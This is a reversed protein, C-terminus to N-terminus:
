SAIDSQKNKLDAWICVTIMAGCVMQISFIHIKIGNAWLWSLGPFRGRMMGCILIYSYYEYLLEEADAEKRVALLTIYERRIDAALDDSFIAM